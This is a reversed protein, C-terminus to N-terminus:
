KCRTWVLTDRDMGQVEGNFLKVLVQHVGHTRAFERAEETADAEEIVLYEGGDNRIRMHETTNGSPLHILCFTDDQKLELLAVVPM